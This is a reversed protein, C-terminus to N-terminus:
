TNAAPGRPMCLSYPETQMVGSQVHHGSAGGFHPRDAKLYAGDTLEPSVHAQYQRPPGLRHLRVLIFGPGSHSM